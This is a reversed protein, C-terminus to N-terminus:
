ISFRMVWKGMEHVVVNEYPKSTSIIIFGPSTIFGLTRKAFNANGIVDDRFLVVVVDTPCYDNITKRFKERRNYVRLHEIFDDIVNYNPFALNSYENNIPTLMHFNFLDRQEYFLSSSLLSNIALNADNELDMLNSYYVGVFTIDIKKYSPGTKWIDKCDIDIEHGIRCIPANEIHNKIGTILKDVLNSFAEDYNGEAITDSVEPSREISLITESELSCVISHAIRLTNEDKVYYIFM